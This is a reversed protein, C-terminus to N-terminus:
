NPQSDYISEASQVGSDHLQRYNTGHIVNDDHHFHSVIQSLWLKQQYLLRLVRKRM